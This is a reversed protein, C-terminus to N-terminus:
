ARGYDQRDSSAKSKWRKGACACVPSVSYQPVFRCQALCCWCNWLLMSFGDPCCGPRTKCLCRGCKVFSAFPTVCGPICSCGVCCSYCIVFKDFQSEYETWGETQSHRNGGGGGGGCPSSCVVCCPLNEVQPLMCFHSLCCCSLIYSCVGGEAENNWPVTQCVQQCCCSACTLQLPRLEDSAGCGCCCCYCCWRAQDLVEQEALRPGWGLSKRPSAAKEDSPSAAKEDSPPRDAMDQQPPAAAAPGHVVVTPVGEFGAQEPPDSMAPQQRVEHHGVAGEPSKNEIETEFAAGAGGKACKGKVDEACQCSAGQGM